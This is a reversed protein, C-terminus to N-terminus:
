SIKHKEIMPILTAPLGLHPIRNRRIVRACLSTLTPLESCWDPLKWDILEGDSGRWKIGNQQIWFYVATKGDTNKRSLEAGFDLLLRATISVFDNLMRENLQSLYHLPANGDADLANPDCGANLLVRVIAHLNNGYIYYASICAKHLLNRGRHDHLKSLMEMTGNNLLRQPLHSLTKFLHIMYSLNIGGYLRTASIILDLTTKIIEANCLDPSDEVFSSLMWILKRIVKDVVWELTPTKSPNLRFITELIAWIIDFIEVFRQQEWLKDFFDYLRLFYCLLSQIAEWSKYFFIRLQVLFLQIMYTDPHEIVDELEASTNWEITQVNKLNLRPKEIFGSDDVEMYRIHIAKRWYDFAKQFQSANKSNSIIAAGALEMAEIKDGRSYDDKELLYNLVNLNPGKGDRGNAAELLPTFGWSDLALLDAGKEVLLQVVTLSDEQHSNTDDYPTGAWYHLVTGNKIPERQALDMGNKILETIAVAGCEDKTWISDM